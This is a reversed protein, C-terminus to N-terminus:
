HVMYPWARPRPPAGRHLLAHMFEMCIPIMGHAVKLVTGNWYDLECLNLFLGILDNLASINALAYLSVLHRLVFHFCLCHLHRASLALKRPIQMLHRINM